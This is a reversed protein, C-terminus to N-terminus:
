HIILNHVAAIAFLTRISSIRSVLSYTDFFDIGEKQRFGKAVLRAKYKKISGDLRLKKKLVWKCGLPKTGLPLDTLEWTNNALISEIEDDLAEKWFAADHANMAEQFTYPNEEVLYTEFDPGFSIAIRMRKSRRPQSEEEEPTGFVRKSPSPQSTFETKFPFLDEFFDADRFEVLSLDELKIFRYAASDKHM